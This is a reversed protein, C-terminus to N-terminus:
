EDDKNEKIIARIEDIEADILNFEKRFPYETKNKIRQYFFKGQSEAKEFEDYLERNINGYSYTQGRGFSMYLLDKKPFYITKLINSSEYITEIYGISGDDDNIVKKEVIM